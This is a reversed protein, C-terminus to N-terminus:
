LKINACTNYNTLLKSRRPAPPIQFPRLIADLNKVQRTHKLALSNRYGVTFESAIERCQLWGLPKPEKLQLLVVFCCYKSNSFLEGIRLAKKYNPVTSTEWKHCYLRRQRAQSRHESHSCTNGRRWPCRLLTYVPKRASIDIASHSNLGQKPTLSMM